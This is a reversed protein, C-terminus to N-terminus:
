NILPARRGRRKEADAAAKAMAAEEPDTLVESAESWDTYPWPGRAFMHKGWRQVQARPDDILDLWSKGLRDFQQTHAESGPVFEVEQGRYWIQGAATFGDELFHLLITEQGNEPQAEDLRPGRTEQLDSLRRVAQDQADRLAAQEPTLAEGRAYEASQTAALAAQLADIQAQIPDAEPINTPSTADSSLLDDMDLAPATDPNQTM